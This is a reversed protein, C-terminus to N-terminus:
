AAHETVCTLARERARELARRVLVEIMTRRYWASARFDDIPAAETAAIRAAEGIAASTVGRNALHREAARARIVTPAVAGLAIRPAGFSAPDGHSGFGAAVNVLALAQGKRLGLKLFAMPMGLSARPVVICTLLEDPAIASHRPSVFFDRLPLTREGRESSLVVSADLALLPPGSDM